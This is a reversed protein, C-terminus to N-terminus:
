DLTCLRPVSFAPSLSILVADPQRLPDLMAIPPPGAKNVKIHVISRDLRVLAEGGGPAVSFEQVEVRGKIPFDFTAIPSDGSRFGYLILPKGANQAYIYGGKPDIGAVRPYGGAGFGTVPKKISNLPYIFTSYNGVPPHDPHGKSNGGGTGLCVYKSDPSFCINQGNSSIRYSNDEQILDDGTVRFRILQEIGGVSCVYKGDPSARFLFIPVKPHNRVVAGQQLDVVQLPANGRDPGAYALTANVGASVRRIGPVSIKKKVTALKDPDLVWLENADPVAVLLGEGSMALNSGPRGLEAFQTTQGNAISVQQILGTDCLMYFSKGDRSWALDGVINKGLKQFNFHRLTVDGIFFQNPGPNAIAGGAVPDPGVSGSQLLLGLGTVENNQNTKGILGIVPTGTGGLRVPAGGGMGGIWPSEYADNPDLKGQGVKMFTVSMGDVTLGVKVTMAGIAYGPKAIVKVVRSLDTGRQMGFSDNGGVRYVPRIARVVDNSGFKGLGIELSALLGDKPATDRFEPDRGGGVIKTAGDAGINPNSAVKPDTRPPLPAVGYVNGTTRTLNVEFIWSVSDADDRIALKLKSFYGSVPDFSGRGIIRSKPRRAADKPANRREVEGAISIVAETKGNVTRSGEYTYKMFLDITTKKKTNGGGLMLAIKEDWVQLADVERNPVSLCALQYTANFMSAMDDAEAYRIQMEVSPPPPPKGKGKPIIGSPGFRQFTFVELRGNQAATFSYIRRKVLNQAEAHRPKVKGRDFTAFQGKGMAVRLAAGRPDATMEELVQFDLNDSDVIKGSVQFEFKGALTLGRESSATSYKLTAPVRNLPAAGVPDYTTSAAWQQLGAHTTLTPQIWYVHGAPLALTAIELEHAALGQRYTLTATQKPSDGPLQDPAKLGARPRPRGPRDM